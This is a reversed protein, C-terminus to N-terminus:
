NAAGVAVWIRGSGAAVGVPQQGLSIRAVVRNQAPDVRFLSSDAVVWLSGDGFAAGVPRNFGAGITAAVINTHPDIRFVNGPRQPCPAHMCSPDSLANTTWVAGAGFAIAQAAASPGGATSGLSIMLPQSVRTAPIRAVGDGTLVWAVGDGVAVGSASPFHWKGVVSSTAADIRTVVGPPDVVLPQGNESAELPGLIRIEM